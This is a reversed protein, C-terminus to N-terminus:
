EIEVNNFGGKICLAGIIGRVRSAGYVSGAGFHMIIEDHYRILARAGSDGLPGGDLWNGIILSRIYM